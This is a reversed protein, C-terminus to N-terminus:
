EEGTAEIDLLTKQIEEQQKMGTLMFAAVYETPMIM